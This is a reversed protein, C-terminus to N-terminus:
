PLVKMVHRLIYTTLIAVAMFILVSILSRLSLRGLGCVGHGSTCGNAMRTGMGVLLGAPILLALPAHIPTASLDMAYRYIGAAIVMGGIFLWNSLRGTRQTIAQYAIGSVGAIRGNLALLVLASVGILVGGLAAILYM